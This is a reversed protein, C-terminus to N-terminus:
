RGGMMGRGGFGGMMGGFSGMMSGFGNMFEGLGNMMGGFGNMMGGFGGRGGSGMMGGSSGMMGGYPGYGNSGNSGPAVNILDNIRRQEYQLRADAQDQTLYGYKVQLSLQDRTPQLLTDTLAQETVNGAQAIQLLTKGKQLQAVIDESTTGLTTAVRQLTARDLFGFGYNPSPTPSPPAALASGAFTLVLLAVLALGSLIGLKKSM